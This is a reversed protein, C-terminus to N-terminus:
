QAGLKRNFAHIAQKEIHAKDPGSLFYTEKWTPENTGKGAVWSPFSLFLGEKAKPSHVLRMGNLYVYGGEALKLKGSVYARIKNQRGALPRVRIDDLRAPM